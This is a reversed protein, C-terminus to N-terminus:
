AVTILSSSIEESFYRLFEETAGTKWRLAEPHYTRFSSEPLDPHALRAVSPRGWPAPSGSVDAFIVGPFTKRLLDDYGPGTFFICVDPELIGLERRIATAQGDMFLDREDAPASVITEGMFDCKSLNAHMVAGPWMEGLARYMRWFPSRHSIPQYRAAAFQGYGWMLGDIADENRIFDALSRMEEFTWDEPYMPYDQKLSKGWDWGFTEKGFVLVRHGAAAYDRTAELLMPPSYKGAVAEMQKLEEKWDHYVSRLATNIIDQTM